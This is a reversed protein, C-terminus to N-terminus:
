KVSGLEQTEPILFAGTIEVRVRDGRNLALKGFELSSVEGVLRTESNGLLLQVRDKFEWIDHITVHIGTNSSSVEEEQGGAWSPVIRISEPPIALTAEQKSHALGSSDLLPVVIEAKWAPVYLTCESCGAEVRRPQVNLLNFGLFEATARNMQKLMESKMGFFAIEGSKIIGIKQGLFFAEDLDHTVYVATTGLSEFIKKLEVRLTERTHRDLASLPEDLLLLRPELVLARAVAVRQTQGGSIQSPKRSALEELGVIKLVEMVRDRVSSESAHRARLGFAVNEFVSMHPFLLYDQFVYGVNRDAPRMRFSSKGVSEVLRGDITIKGEDAGYLGSIINLLTSKGAGSPGVLTGVKGEELSFSIERLVKTSGFSKSLREVELGSPL